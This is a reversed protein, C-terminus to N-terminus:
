LKLTVILGSNICKWHKFKHGHLIRLQNLTEQLIRSCSGQAGSPGKALVIKFSRLTSSMSINVGDETQLFATNGLTEFRSTLELLNDAIM